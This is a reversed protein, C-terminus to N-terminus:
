AKSEIKSIEVTTWLEAATTNVVIDCSKLQLLYCDDARLFQTKFYRNVFFTPDYKKRYDIDRKWKRKLRIPDDTLYVVKIGILDALEKMQFPFNGEIFIIDAPEIELPMRGPKLNGYQDHSSTANYFDYRPITIKKGSLIEALSHKFIEFHTTKEGISQEGRLERDFLFNDMEITTIKKGISNFTNFLREIIETKGAATPGALTLLIPTGRVEILKVVLDIFAQDIEANAKKFEKYGIEQNHDLKRQSKEFTRYPKGGFHAIVEDSFYKTRHFFLFARIDFYFNDLIWKEPYDGNLLGVFLMQTLHVIRNDLVVKDGNKKKTEIASYFDRSNVQEEIEHKAVTVISGWGEKPELNSLAYGFEYFELDDIAPLINKMKEFLQFSFEKSNNVEKVPTM